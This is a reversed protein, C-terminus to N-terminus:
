WLFYNFWMCLTRFGLNKFFHRVCTLKVLKLTLQLLIIRLVIIKYGIRDVTGEFPMIHKKQFTISFCPYGFHTGRRCNQWPLM